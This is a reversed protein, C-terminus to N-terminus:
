KLIRKCVILAIKDANAEIPLERYKKHRYDGYIKSVFRKSNVWKSYKSFQFYHAIEHAIIFFIKENRTKFNRNVYDFICDWNKESKTLFVYGFELNRSGSNYACNNSNILFKISIPKLNLNKFIQKASNKIYPMDNFSFRLEIYTDKFDSYIYKYFPILIEKYFDKLIEMLM